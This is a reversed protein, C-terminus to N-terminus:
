VFLKVISEWNDQFRISRDDIYALCGEKENTMRHYHIGKEFGNLKLWSELELRQEGVSSVVDHKTLRACFLVVEYGADVLTKLAWKALPKPPETMRGGNWGKKFEAITGDVDCFITKKHKKM